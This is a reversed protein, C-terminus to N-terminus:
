SKADFFVEQLRRLQYTVLARPWTVWSVSGSVSIRFQIAANVWWHSPILFLKFNDWSDWREEDQRNRWDQTSREGEFNTDGGQASPREEEPGVRLSLEMDIIAQHSDMEPCLRLFLVTELFSYCYGEQFIHLMRMLQVDVKPSDIQIYCWLYM